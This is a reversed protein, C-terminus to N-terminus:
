CVSKEMELFYFWPIHSFEISTKNVNWDFLTSIGIDAKSNWIYFCGFKAASTNGM